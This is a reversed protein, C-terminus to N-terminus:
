TKRLIALCSIVNGKVGQGYVAGPLYDNRADAANELKMYLNTRYAHPPFNSMISNVSETRNKKEAIKCAFLTKSLFPSNNTM